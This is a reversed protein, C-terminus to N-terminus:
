LAFGGEILCRRPRGPERHIPYHRFQKRLVALAAGVRGEQVFGLTANL